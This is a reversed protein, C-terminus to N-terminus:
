KYGGYEEQHHARDDGFECDMCEIKKRMTVVKGVIKYDGEELFEITKSPFSYGCCQYNIKYMKVKEGELTIGTSRSRDM